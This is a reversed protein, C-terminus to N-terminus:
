FSLPMMTATRKPHASPKFCHDMFMQLVWKVVRKPAPKPITAQPATTPAPQPPARNDVAPSGPLEPSVDQAAELRSLKAATDNVVKAGPGQYQIHLFEPGSPSPGIVTALLPGAKSHSHYWVHAGITYMQTQISLFDSCWCLFFFLAFRFFHATLTGGGGGGQPPIAPPPPGLCNHVKRSGVSFCAAMIKQFVGHLWFHWWVIQLLNKKGMAAVRWVTDCKNKM